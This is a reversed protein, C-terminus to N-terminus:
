GNALANELASRTIHFGAPDVMYRVGRATAFYVGMNGTQHWYVRSWRDAIRVMLDTPCGRRTTYGNRTMGRMRQAETIPKIRAFVNAEDGSGPIRIIVEM